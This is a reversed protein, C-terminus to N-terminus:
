KIIEISYVLRFGVLPSSTGNELATKYFIANYQDDGFTKVDQLYNSGLVFHANSKPQDSDLKYHQWKNQTVLDLVFESVNGNLFKVSYNSQNARYWQTYNLSPTGGLGTNKKAFPDYHVKQYFLFEGGYNHRRFTNFKDNSQDVAPYYGEPGLTKKVAFEYETITPPRVTIKFGKSEYEANLQHQKWHCFAMIQEKNINVVPYDEFAPHWSLNSLFGSHIGIGKVKLFGTTDPYIAVEEGAKYKYILKATNVERRKYYRQPQPYYHDATAKLWVKDDIKRRNKRSLGFRKLNNAKESLDVSKLEKKTCDLLLGAEQDSLMDYALQLEISDSVWNIFDRYEGNTVEYNSFYFPHLLSDLKPYILQGRVDYGKDIFNEPVHRHKLSEVRVFQRDDIFAGDLIGGTINIPTSAENETNENKTNNSNNSLTPKADYVIQYKDGFYKEDYMLWEFRSSDATALILDIM